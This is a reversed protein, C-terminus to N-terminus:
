LIMKVAKRKRGMGASVIGRTMFAQVIGPINDKTNTCVVGFSFPYAKTSAMGLGVISLAANPAAQMYNRTMSTDEDTVKVKLELVGDDFRVDTKLSLIKTEQEDDGDTDDDDNDEKELKIRTTIEVGDENKQPVGNVCVVVTAYGDEIARVNKLVGLLVETDIVPVARYCSGSNSWRPDYMVVLNVAGMSFAVDLLACAHEISVTNTQKKMLELKVDIYDCESLGTINGVCIKIFQPPNALAALNTESGNDVEAVPIDGMYASTLKNGEVIFCAKEGELDKQLAPYLDKRETARRQSEEVSFPLGVNQVGCQLVADMPTKSERMSKVNIIRGSLASDIHRPAILLEVVTFAPIYDTDAPLTPTAGSGSFTIANVFFVFTDGTTLNALPPSYKSVDTPDAVGGCRPGRNM